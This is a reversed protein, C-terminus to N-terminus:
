SIDGHARAFEIIRRGVAVAQDWPILAKDRDPTSAGTVTVGDDEAHLAVRHSAEDGAGVDKPADVTHLRHGTLL